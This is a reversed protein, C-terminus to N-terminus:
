SESRAEGEQTKVAVFCLRNARNGGARRSDKANGLDGSYIKAKAEVQRTSLSASGITMKTQYRLDGSASTSM